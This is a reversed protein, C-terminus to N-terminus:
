IDLTAIAQKLSNASAVLAKEEAPSLPVLVSRRIGQSNVIFPLSLCVDEIGYEGHLMGSVTIMSNTERQLCEVIRRVAIAIAYFTAGKMGIVQAGSTRMNQEIAQLESKDCRNHHECVDTCYDKMNLVGINVLSWPIMSTDGHEGMVYAHIHQPAFGVHEALGARLRSTDLLTGSGIVQNESLNTTKLIAYTLIDIPNSVVIYVANPAYKTIHPMVGKIINVNTQALDLRTQGPKRALGLTIIVIHADQASEYDGAYINVPPSFPTGQVIDMAEGKARENDIDILVIESVAGSITLTYAITAGVKGAGLIAVKTGKKLM